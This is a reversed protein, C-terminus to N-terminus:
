TCFIHEQGQVALGRPTMCGEGEVSTMRVVKRRCAGSCGKKAWSSSGAVTVLPMKGVSSGLLKVSVVQAFRARDKRAAGQRLM